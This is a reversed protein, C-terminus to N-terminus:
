RVLEEYDRIAKESDRITELVDLIDAETPYPCDVLGLSKSSYLVTEGSRVWTGTGHLAAHVAALNSVIAERKRYALRLADRAADREAKMQLFLRGKEDQTM